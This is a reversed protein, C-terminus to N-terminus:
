LVELCSVAGTTLSTRVLNIADALTYRAAAGHRREM